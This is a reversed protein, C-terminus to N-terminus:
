TVGVVKDFRAVATRTDHILVIVECEGLEVGPVWGDAIATAAELGPIVDANARTHKGMTVEMILGFSVRVGLMM